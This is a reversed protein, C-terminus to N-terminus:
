KHPKPPEADEGAELNALWADAEEHTVHLRNSQYDNWARMANQKLRELAAAKAAAENIVDCSLRAGNTESKVIGPLDHREGLAKEQSDIRDRHKASQMRFVSGAKRVIM